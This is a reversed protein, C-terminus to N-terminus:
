VVAIAAEAGGPDSRCANELAKGESILPMRREAPVILVYRRPQLVEAVPRHWGMM